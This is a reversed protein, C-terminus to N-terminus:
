QPTLEEDPDARSGHLCVRPAAAAAAALEHSLWIGSPRSAVVSGLGRLAVYLHVSM